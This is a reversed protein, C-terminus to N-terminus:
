LTDPVFSLDLLKPLPRICQGGLKIRTDQESQPIQDQKHSLGTNAQQCCGLEPDILCNDFILTNSLHNVVSHSPGLHDLLREKSSHLVKLLILQPLYINQGWYILPAPLGVLPVVNDLKRGLEGAHRFSLSCLLQLRSDHCSKTEVPHGIASGSYRIRM